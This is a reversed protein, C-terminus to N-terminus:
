KTKKTTTIKPTETVAPTEPATEDGTPASANSEAGLDTGESGDVKPEDTTVELTIDKSGDDTVETTVEVAPTEPAEPAAPTTEDAGTIAEVIDKAGEVLTDVLLEAGEEIQEFGALMLRGAAHLGDEIEIIEGNVVKTKERTSKKTQVLTHGEATYQYFAM